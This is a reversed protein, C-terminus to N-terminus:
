SIDRSIFRVGAPIAKQFLIRIPNLLLQNVVSLDKDPEPEQLKKTLDKGQNKNRSEEGSEKDKFRHIVRKKSITSCVLLLMKKVPFAPVPFVVNRFSKTFFGLFFVNNYRWGPNSGDISTAYGNMRHKTQREPSKQWCRFSDVLIKGVVNRDSAV